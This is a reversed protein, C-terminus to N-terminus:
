PARRRVSAAYAPERYTACTVTSRLVLLGDPWARVPRGARAGRSVRPLHDAHGHDHWRMVDDYHALIVGFDDRSGEDPRSRRAAVVVGAFAAISLLVISVLSLLIPHNTLYIM